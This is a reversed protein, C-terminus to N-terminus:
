ALDDVSLSGLAPIFDVASQDPRVPVVSAYGRDTWYLDTEPNDPEENHFHGTLWYFPRGSPDIYDAYEETWFGKAARAVRIGKCSDGKPINVNLCIDKPLGSSLVYRTVADVVKHCAALSRQQDHSHYSYGISPIGAMCGELVAGMTGSYIVNNGSNSGHNIGSLILDPRRCLLTHLALKVCDVPTGSVSYMKAGMYEHHKTVSLVKNVSIASSQGSCAGDPAVAVVDGLSSVCSVLERLGPADIGDDNTILILPRGGELHYQKADM